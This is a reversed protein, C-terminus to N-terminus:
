VTPPRVSTVVDTPRSPQADHSLSMMSFPTGCGKCFRSDRSKTTRNCKQCQLTNGMEVFSKWWDFLTRLWDFSLKLVSTATLCPLLLPLPFASCLLQSLLPLDVKDPVCVRVVSFIPRVFVVTTAAAAALVRDRLYLMYM